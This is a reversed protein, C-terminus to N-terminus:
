PSVRDRPKNRWGPPTPPGLPLEQLPEGWPDVYDGTVISITSIWDDWKYFRQANVDGSGYKYSARRKDCSVKLGKSKAYPIDKNFVSSGFAWDFGPVPEGPQLPAGVGSWERRYHGVYLKLHLTGEYSCTVDQFCYEDCGKPTESTLPADFTVTMTLNKPASQGGPWALGRTARMYEPFHPDLDIAVSVEVSVDVSPPCVAPAAPMLGLPDITCAPTGQCYQLLNAGDVYGAPDRGIFRGLGVDYMRYRFQMLGTEQDLRRGTFTWPNGYLSENVTRPTGNGDLVTV